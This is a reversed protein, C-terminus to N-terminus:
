FTRSASFAIYARDRLTQGFSLQRPSAAGPVLTETFTRAKGFYDNYTLALNWDNQYKAKVGISYDGAKSAGGAFNGIASSRGGFNYGLGIPVSLDLGSAVQFYSPEFLLRLAFAGQTTNPDLGGDGVDGGAFPDKTVKLRHNYALEALVAGGQWLANPQLVYIGNVQLHATNGVAYCPKAATNGCNAVGTPSPTLVAPDSNLPANQRISGELAWNLQGISSTVSAGVTRINRAYAVHVNGNVFDFVLASPTKDHYQAAYLGFEYDGGPPSWRVQAGFQRYSILKGMFDIAPQDPWRAVADDLIAQVPRLPIPADWHLAAPYTHTWPHNPM